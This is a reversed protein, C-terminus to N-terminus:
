FCCSRRSTVTSLALRENSIVPMDVEEQEVMNQFPSEELYVYLTNCESEYKLNDSCKTKFPIMTKSNLHICIFCKSVVKHTLTFIIILSKENLQLDAAVSQFVQSKYFM